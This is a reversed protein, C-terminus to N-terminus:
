RVKKLSEYWVQPSQTTGFSEFPLFLTMAWKDAPVWIFDSQVRDRRYMKVAPRFWRMRARAKMLQYTAQALTTQTTTGPLPPVVLPLLEDLLWARYVPHLYHWNMGLLHTSSVRYVLNLPFRDFYPLRPDPTHYRWIYFQGFELRDWSRWRPQPSPGRRQKLQEALYDYWRTAQTQYIAVTKSNPVLKLLQSFPGFPLPM